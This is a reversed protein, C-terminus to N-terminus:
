VAGEVVPQLIRWIKEEWMSLSFSLRATQYANAGLRRRLEADSMLRELAMTLEDANPNILLGNFGDIILNGLGGINTAIVANGHHMAEICSLSTGEAFLTPIVTIDAQRYADGMRDFPFSTITVPGDKLPVNLEQFKKHLLDTATEDGILYLFRAQPFKPLLRGTAEAMILMGRRVQSRRPFLVVLDEHERHAFPEPDGFLETDAYNPIFTMKKANRRHAFRARYWNIFNTDVCVIRGLHEVCSKMQHETMRL